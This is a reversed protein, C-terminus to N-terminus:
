DGDKAVTYQLDTIAGLIELRNGRGFTSIYATSDARILVVAMAVYNDEDAFESLAKLKDRIVKSHNSRVTVLKLPEIM